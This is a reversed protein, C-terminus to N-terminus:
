EPAGVNEGSMQDSANGKDKGTEADTIKTDDGTDYGSNLDSGEGTAPPTGNQEGDSEEGSDADTDTDADGSPQYKIEPDTSVGGSGDDSQIPGYGPTSNGKQGSGYVPDKGVEQDPQQSDDPDGNNSNSNSNNNQEQEEDDKQIIAVKKRRTTTVVPDRVAVQASFAARRDKMNQLVESTQLTRGEGLKARTVYVIMTDTEQYQEEETGEIRITRADAGPMLHWVKRTTRRELAIPELQEFFVLARDRWLTAEATWVRHSAIEQQTTYKSSDFTVMCDWGIPDNLPDKSELDFFQKRWEEYEQFVDENNITFAPMEAFVQMWMDMYRPDNAISEKTFHAYAGLQEEESMSDLEKQRDARKQDIEETSLKVNGGDVDFITGIDFWEQDMEIPPATGDEFGCYRSRYDAMSPDSGRTIFESIAGFVEHDALIDAVNLGQQSMLYNVNPVAQDAMLIHEEETGDENTITITATKGSVYPEIEPEEAEEPEMVGVDPDNDTVSDSPTGSDAAPGKEVAAILWVLSVAGVIFLIVSIATAIRANKLNKSIESM